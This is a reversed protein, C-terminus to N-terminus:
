EAGKRRQFPLIAKKSSIARFLAQKIDTPIKFEQAPTLKILTSETSNKRTGYYFQHNQLCYHIGHKGLQSTEYGIFACDYTTRTGKLQYYQIKWHKQRSSKALFNTFIKEFFIIEKYNM